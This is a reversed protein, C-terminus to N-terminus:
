IEIDVLPERTWHSSSYETKRATIEMQKKVASTYCDTCAVRIRVCNSAQDEEVNKQISKSGQLLVELLTLLPKAVPESLCSSNFSGDYPMQQLLIYRRLMGVDIIKKAEDESM